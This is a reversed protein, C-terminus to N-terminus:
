FGHIKIEDPECIHYKCLFQAVATRQDGQINIIGGFEEDELVSGNTNLTKKLAKLIKPLDLDEALGEIITTSKKGSRQKTRIHVISPPVQSSSERATDTFANLADLQNFVLNNLLKSM